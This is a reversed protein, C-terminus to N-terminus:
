FMFVWESVTLSEGLEHAIVSAIRQKNAASGVGPQYMLNSERFTIMGWHEMAGSVFDPVGM